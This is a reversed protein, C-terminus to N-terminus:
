ICQVRYIYTREGSTKQTRQTDATYVQVCASTAASVWRRTYKYTYLERPSDEEFCM